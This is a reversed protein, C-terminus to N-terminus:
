ADGEGAITGSLTDGSEANEVVVTALSVPSADADDLARGSVSAGEQALSPAPLLLIVLLLGM